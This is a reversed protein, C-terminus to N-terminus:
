QEVGGPRIDLEVWLRQLFKLEDPLAADLAYTKLFKLGRAPYRRWVLEVQHAACNRVVILYLELPLPQHNGLTIRAGGQSIDRITCDLTYLNDPTLADAGFV